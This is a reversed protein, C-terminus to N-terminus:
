GGATSTRVRERILSLAAHITEAAEELAIM